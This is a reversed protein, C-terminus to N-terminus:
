GRWRVGLDLEKRCYALSQTMHELQQLKLGDMYRDRVGEVDAMLHPKNWPQGRKAM